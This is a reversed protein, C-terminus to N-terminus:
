VEFEIRESIWKVFGYMKEVDKESMRSDATYTYRDGSGDDILAVRYWSKEPKVRWIYGEGYNWPGFSIQTNANYDEWVNPRDEYSYQIAKGKALAECIKTDILVVFGNSGGMPVSRRINSM